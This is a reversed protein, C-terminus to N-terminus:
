KKYVTNLKKIEAKLEKITKRLDKNQERLSDNEYKLEFDGDIITKYLESSTKEVLIEYDLELSNYKKELERYDLQRKKNKIFM